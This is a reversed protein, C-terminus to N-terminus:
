ADRALTALGGSIALMPLAVLSPLGGGMELFLQYWEVLCGGVAGFLGDADAAHETEARRDERTKVKPKRM